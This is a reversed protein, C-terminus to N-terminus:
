CQGTFDLQAAQEVKELFQRLSIPPWLLKIRDETYIAKVM